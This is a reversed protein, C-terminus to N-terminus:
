IAYDQKLHNYYDVCYTRLHDTWQEPWENIDKLAYKAQNSKTVSYNFDSEGIFSILDDLKKNLSELGLVMWRERKVASLQNEILQNWYKWYWCNREFSDMERWEKESFENCLYGNIRFKSFIKSSYVDPESAVVDYGFETNAFWGRHYTSNVVDAPNRILWIFKSDPYHNALFDIFPVLKQDSIVLKGKQDISDLITHLCYTIKQKSPGNNLFEYALPVLEDSPEHIGHIKTNQNLTRIISNTGSRGTGLVFVIQSSKSEIKRSRSGIILPGKDNLDNRIISGKALVQDEEVIVLRENELKVNREIVCGKKM